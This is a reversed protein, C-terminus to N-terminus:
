EGGETKTTTTTTTSPPPPEAGAAAIEARESPLGRVEAWNTIGSWAGALLLMSPISATLVPVADGGAIFLALVQLMVAAFLTFWCLKSSGAFREKPSDYTM